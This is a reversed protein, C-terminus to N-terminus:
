RLTRLLAPGSEQLEEVAQDIKALGSRACSAVTESGCLQIGSTIFAGSLPMSTSDFLITYSLATGNMKTGASTGPRLTVVVFKIYPWEKKNEVLRYGHSGRIAEKLTFVYQRGVSDDDSVTSEVHVAVKSQALCTTFASMILVAFFAGLQRLVTQCAYNSYRAVRHAFSEAIIAM